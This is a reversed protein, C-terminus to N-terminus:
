DLPRRDQVYIRAVVERLAGVDPTTLACRVLRVEEVGLNLRKRQALWDLIIEVSRHDFSIDYFSIKQLGQYHAGLSVADFRTSDGVDMLPDRTLHEMFPEISHHLTLNRLQPLRALPLASRLPKSDVILTDLQRLSLAAIACRVTEKRRDHDPSASQVRISYHPPSVDLRTRHTWLDVQFIEELSGSTPCPVDKLKMGYLVPPAESDLRKTELLGWLVNWYANNYPVNLVIRCSSLFHIHTLFWYCDWMAASLELYELNLSVSRKNESSIPIVPLADTLALRRLHPMRAFAQLFDYFDLRILVSTLELSILNNWLPSTWDLLCRTLFLHRLAAAQGQFLSPPVPDTLELHPDGWLHLTDLLPAPVLLAPPLSLESEDPTLHLERIRALQSLIVDRPAAKRDNLSRPTPNPWLDVCVVLPASGSRRLMEVAWRPESTSIHTWFKRNGLAIDRWRSCVHTVALLPALHSSIFSPGDVREPACCIGLIIALIEPPVRALSTLSNRRARLAHRLLFLEFPALSALDRRGSDLEDILSVVTGTDDKQAQPQKSIRARKM